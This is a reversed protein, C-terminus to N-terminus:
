LFIHQPKVGKNGAVKIQETDNTNQALQSKNVRYSNPNIKLAMPKPVYQDQQKPGDRFGQQKQYMKEKIINKQLKPVYGDRAVVRKEVSEPNYAVKAGKAQQVELFFSDVLHPAKKPEKKPKKTESEESNVSIKRDKKEKGGKEKLNKEKKPKEKILIEEVVEDDQDQESREGDQEEQDSEMEEDVSDHEGGHSEEDEGDAEVLEKERIKAKIEITKLIKQMHDDRLQDTAKDKEPDGSKAFLSIYKWTPPYNDIYTLKNQWDQKQKMLEQSDPSHRLEKEVLQLHRIVKRKEIFKVKKYKLQFKQAENKEKIQKKLEKIEAIKAAKIEAPLGERDVFRQLDRLKKKSSPKRDKNKAVLKHFKNVNLRNNPDDVNRPDRRKQKEAPAEDNRESHKGM